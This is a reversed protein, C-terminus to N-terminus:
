DLQFNSYTFLHIYAVDTAKWIMSYVQLNHLQDRKMSQLDYKIWSVKHLNCLMGVYTENNQDFQIEFYFLHSYNPWFVQWQPLWCSM